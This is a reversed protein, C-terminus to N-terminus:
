STRATLRSRCAAEPQTLRAGAQERPCVALYAAAEAPRRCPVPAPPAPTTFSLVNSYPSENTGDSGRVRWYYTANYPLEGMTMTTTGSGNPVATVVAVMTSFDAAQSVEFRYM